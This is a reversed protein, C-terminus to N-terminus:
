HCVHDIKAPNATRTEGLRLIIHVLIIIGQPRSLKWIRSDKWVGSVPVYQTLHLQDLESMINNWIRYILYTEYSDLM